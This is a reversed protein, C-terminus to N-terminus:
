KFLMKHYKNLQLKIHCFVTTKTACRDTVRFYLSPITFYLHVEEDQPRPYMPLLYFSALLLRYNALHFLCLPMEYLYICHFVIQDHYFSISTETAKWRKSRMEHSITENELSPALHLPRNQARLRTRSRTLSSPRISTNWVTRFSWIRRGCITWLMTLQGSYSISWALILPFFGLFVQLISEESTYSKCFEIIDSWSTQWFVVM